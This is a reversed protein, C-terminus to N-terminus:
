PTSNVTPQETMIESEPIEVSDAPLIRRQISHVILRPDDGRQVTLEVGSGPEGHLALKLQDPTLTSTFNRDIKIIVDGVKFGYDDAPGGRTLSVIVPL